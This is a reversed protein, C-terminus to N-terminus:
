TDLAGVSAWNPAMKDGMTLVVTSDGAMTENTESGKTTTLTFGFNSIEGWLKKDKFQGDSQAPEPIGIM